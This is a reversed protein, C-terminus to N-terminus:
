TFLLLQSKHEESQQQQAAILLSKFLYKVRTKGIERHSCKNVYAAHTCPNGHSCIM